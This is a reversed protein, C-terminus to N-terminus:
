TPLYTENKHLKLHVINLKKTSNYKYAMNALLSVDCSMLEICLMHLFFGSLM